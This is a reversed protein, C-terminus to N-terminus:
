RSDSYFKNWKRSSLNEYECTDIVDISTSKLELLANDKFDIELDKERVM